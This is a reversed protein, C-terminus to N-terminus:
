QYVNIIERLRSVCLDLAATQIGEGAPVIIDAKRKSPEVFLQHMPRVFKSYQEIVSELSRSREKTDRTIRRILRIDDDTDVFIKIDMLSLLEPDSFILIGDIIIIKRPDLLTTVDTRAHQNYDYSPVAISEGQKLQKIHSILLSTELSDPHDYNIKARDNFPLHNM